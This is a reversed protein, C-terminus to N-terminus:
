FAILCSFVAGCAAADVHCPDKGQAEACGEADDVTATCSADFMDFNDVCTAEDDITVTLGGGCDVERAGGAVDVTYSCVADQDSSSLESLKQSGSVGSGSSSGGCATAALVLCLLSMRMM